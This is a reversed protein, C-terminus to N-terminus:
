DTSHVDAVPTNLTDMKTNMPRLNWIACKGISPIFALSMNEIIHSVM